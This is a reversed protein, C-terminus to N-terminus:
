RVTLIQSMDSVGITAAAAAAYQAANAGDINRYYDYALKHTGNLNVIGNALGQGIEGADDLERSLIFGDIHQNAMAQLYGYTIAAAQINEGQLSTYGQESCIVSRVQGNPALLSKQCLYDTLVDINQMTIYATNQSHQVRSSSSWPIPDYLPVDYPHVAVHWDINGETMMIANFVDLFSRSGYYLAANSAKAWQQDVSIYVRANGNESKIGNYFIRIAKAYENAFTTVDVASMYNWDARANVENGIVWNDVTGHGNGSYRQALFSAVAELKEVGAQEATNFAYYNATVSSRSLPHILTPDGTLNNLVVMTM